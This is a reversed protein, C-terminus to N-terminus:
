VRARAYKSRAYERACEAHNWQIQSPRNKGRPRTALNRPDDYRGCYPCKLWDAHGSADLARTRQHLLMHYARNPCIVLNEPRNDAKNENWHHIEEPRKLPRGLIRAAVVRHEMERTGTYKKGKWSGSSGFGRLIYGAWTVAGTGAPRKAM